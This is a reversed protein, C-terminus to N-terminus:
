YGLKHASKRYVDNNLRIEHNIPTDKGNKLLNLAGTSIIHM